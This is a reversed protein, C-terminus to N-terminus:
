PLQAQRQRRRSRSRRMRLPRPACLLSGARIIIPAATSRLSNTSRSRTGSKQTELAPCQLTSSQAYAASCLALLLVGLNGCEDEEDDDSDRGRRDLATASLAALDHMGAELRFEHYEGAEPQESNLAGGIPHQMPSGAAEPGAGHHFPTKPEDIKMKPNAAAYEENSKLNPEDWQIRKGKRGPSPETSSM